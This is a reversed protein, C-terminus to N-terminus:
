ESRLSDVPNANAASITQFSITLFAFVLTILGVGVFMWWTLELKFAFQNLWSQTAFYSIPIALVIAIIILKAFDSILITAIRLGNAGLIKRIGIEKTRVETTYAMLGFLGLGSIFIALLSFANVIKGMNTEARYMKDLKSDLFEYDFLTEPSVNKINAEIDKLTQQINSGQLKVVMRSTRGPNYSLVLPEIKQHLSSFHFNNIVGVIEGKNQFSTNEVMTGIPNQLRLAEVAQKNLIFAASTDSGAIFDRGEEISIGMTRLYHEDVRMVRVSPFEESDPNTGIPVVYEVSLRDGALNSALSAEIISTNQTLETRFSAWNQQLYNRFEGYFKIGIVRDKEFGLDKNQIYNMQLFLVLTGTMMIISITFQFVVLVKRVLAGASNPAKQSKLAILSPQRSVYFAPYTGSFFGVMLVLVMLIRLNDTTLLDLHSLPLEVLQNYSPLAVVALLIGLLTALFTMIFAEGLFQFVLQGKKAGLVKRVGIERARKITQTTFINIFNICAILIIFIALAAFIYVFTIDSNTSMEQERHSHLHISKIPYAQLHAQNEIVVEKPTDPLFDFILDHLKAQMNSINAQNELLAYNYTVMWSRNSTWSEPVLKYFTPMTVFYDIKLHSNKPLDEVVGIVEYDWKDDFVVVDGIPDKDGFFQQAMKETLIVKFPANLLEQPKGEIFNLGFIQFFEADAYYGNAVEAKYQDTRVVENGFPAIQSILKAEPLNTKLFEKLPPASNAWKASSIRYIHESRSFNNEYSLEQKLHLIILLSSAVGLSLGIINLLSTVRQKRINRFATKIYNKFMGYNNLKQYGELSRIIGPRFLRIVDLSFQRKASRIGKEEIRKEFRELLDGEIDEAFDRHCYWRFFRLPLKPPTTEKNM